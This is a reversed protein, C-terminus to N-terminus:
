EIITRTLVANDVNHNEGPESAVPISRDIIYFARNRHVLGEDSGIEPGVRGFDDVEFYGLSIWIAYVNSRTTAAVGLRTRFENRFFASAEVDTGVGHEDDNVGDTLFTDSGDAKRFLNAEAGKRLSEPNDTFEASEATTYHHGFDSAGIPTERDERFEQFELDSFGRTLGKWVGEQYVTNLNVKGPYRFNPISHWPPHLNFKLAGGSPVFIPEGEIDRTVLWTESGLFRNPVEVFEWMWGFRNPQAIGGREVNGFAMIHGFQDDGFFYSFARDASENAGIPETESESRNFHRVIGEASLMPVNALEMTNAYPRNNWMLWSYQNTDDFSGNRGGLTEHREMDGASGVDGDTFRFSFNHNDNINPADNEAPVEVRGLARYFQRRAAEPSEEEAIQEGREIGGLTTGQDQLVYRLGFSDDIDPNVENTPNKQLGNFALLDVNALDITVYPNATTHFDSLPDALRQLKLVRFQYGSDQKIGNTWIAGMDGRDRNGEPAEADFPEDNPTKLTIGDASKTADVNSLDIPYGGDPDSLSLGRNGIPGSHGSRFHQITSGICNRTLVKRTRAGDFDRISVSTASLTIARTQAIERPTPDKREDTSTLRGFTQQGNGVNGDPGLVMYCRSDNNPEITGLEAKPFFCDHLPDPAKSNVPDAFYITRVHEDADDAEPGRHVAIRWVPTDDPALIGMDVGKVKTRLSQLLDQPPKQDSLEFPLLQFGQVPDDTTSTQRHPHYLEVYLSSQPVRGGDWDPDGGDTTEGTSDEFTDENQRDHHAFTETILIEPREAGYVVGRETSEDTRPDGDVRNEEERPDNFPNVDYEFVTMISDPDYFDVVNVAWQAVSKRYLSVPVIALGEDDLPGSPYGEPAADGCTLLALLYLQKAMLSKVTSDDTEPDNNLDYVPNGFQTKSIGPIRSSETGRALEVSNDIVGDLNNDVGNGIIPILNFRGGMLMDKSIYKMEFEDETDPDIYRDSTFINFITKQDADEFELAIKNRLLELISTTTAPIAIEFSHTTVSDVADGFIGLRSNLLAGDVDGRRLIGELEQANFLSDGVGGRLSFDSLYPNQDSLFGTTAIYEPMAEDDGELMTYSNSAFFDAATGFRYSTKTNIRPHGFMKQTPFYNPTLSNKRAGAQEDAGYRQVILSEYNDGITDSLSIEAVGYGTGTRGRRERKTDGLLGHANLNLRGDLDIIRYAVLPRFKYGEADIQDPLGIDIWVADPRGDMDTDVDLSVNSNIAVTPDLSGDAQYRGFWSQPNATNAGPRQPPTATSDLPGIHVPRFSFRRIHSATIETGDLAESTRRYQYDYLRDRHFSPIVENDEGFMGSLFMNHQDPADWPENPSKDSSLYGDEAILEEFREGIRNPRSATAKTIDIPESENEDSVLRELPDADPDIEHDAIEGAGFGSFERGNIIFEDEAEVDSWQIGTEDRPIVVQLMATATDDEDPKIAAHSVIRTSYGKAKGSTLTIVRGNLIGDVYAESSLYDELIIGDRITTLSSPDLQLVVLANNSSPQFSATDSLTGKLGYGYLDELISHGRLPSVAHELSPGRVADYFAQDLWATTDRNISNHRGRRIASRYYNNAVVVFATGMMLFLVLMSITFLLTIGERAPVGFHSKLHM